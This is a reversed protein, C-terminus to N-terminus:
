GALWKPNAVRAIESTNALITDVKRNVGEMAEKIAARFERRMELQSRLSAEQIAEIIRDSSGLIMSGDHGTNGGARLSGRRDAGGGPISTRRNVTSGRRPFSDDGKVVSRRRFFGTIGKKQQPESGYQDAGGMSVACSASIRKIDDADLGGTASDRREAARGLVTDSPYSSQRVSRREDDSPSRDYRPSSCETELLEHSNDLSTRRGDARANDTLALTSLDTSRRRAEVIQGMVDVTGFPSLSPGAERTDDMGSGSAALSAGGDNDIPGRTLLSFAPHDAMVENGARDKVADVPSTEQHNGHAPNSVRDMLSCGVRRPPSYSDDDDDDESSRRHMQLPATGFAGEVSARRRRTPSKEEAPPAPAVRRCLLRSAISSRRQPSPTDAKASDRSATPSPDSSGLARACSIASTGNRILVRRSMSSSRKGFSTNGESSDSNREAAKANIERLREKVTHEFRTKATPFAELVADMDDKGLSLLMCDSVARVDANRPQSTLLAMEGFYDGENLTKVVIDDLLIEVTGRKVFYLRKGSDGAYFVYDGTICICPALKTVLVNFFDKPFGTFIRVQEVMKKNLQIHIELQLNAPLQHAIADVNIGKTVAFAFDTYQRIQRVLPAPLRHFRAFENIEDVRKKYRYGSAYLDRVFQGINGYIVSYAIAGIIFVLITYAREGIPNLVDKNDTLCLRSEHADISKLATMVTLAWYTSCTYRTWLYSIAQNQNGALLASEQLTWLWPRGGPGFEYEPDIDGSPYGSKIQLPYVAIVYWALGLWHGITVFAMMLSVIRMGNAGNGGGSGSIVRLIRGVRLVVFLRAIESPTKEYINMASNSPEAAALLWDIPFSALIDIILWTRMYRSWVKSPSSITYGHDSYTTRAKIFVDVTFLADLLSDMIRWDHFYHHGFEPFVLQLPAYFISYCSASACVWDWTCVATSNHDFLYNRKQFAKKSFHAWASIRRGQERGADVLRKWQSERKKVHVLAHLPTHMPMTALHSNRIGNHRERAVMSPSGKDDDRGRAWEM